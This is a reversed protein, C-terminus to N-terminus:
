SPGSRILHSTWLFPVGRLFGLFLPPDGLPTLLGGANSVIFIFFIPLHRSYDRVRNARLYPRILLMSAGTTGIVSALVAGVALLGANVWPSQKLEGRLVVGGSIIFLSGLLFIFSFYEEGAHLLMHWDLTALYGATPVTVIATFILRNRNKEWWHGAVLPLIAIGLLIVVFPAVAVYPIDPHGGHM